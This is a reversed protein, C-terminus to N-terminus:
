RASLLVAVSQDKSVNCRIKKKFNISVRLVSRTAFCGFAEKLKRKRSGPCSCPSQLISNLRCSVFLWPFRFSKMQPQVFCSISSVMREMRRETESM